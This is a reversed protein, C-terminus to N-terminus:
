TPDLRNRTTELILVEHAPESVICVFLKTLSGASGQREREGGGERDRDGGEPETVRKM